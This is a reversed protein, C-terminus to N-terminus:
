SADYGKGMISGNKMLSTLIFIKVFYIQNELSNSVM